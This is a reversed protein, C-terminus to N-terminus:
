QRASNFLLLVVATLMLASLVAALSVHQWLNYDRNQVGKVKRQRENDGKAHM